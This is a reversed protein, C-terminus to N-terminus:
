VDEGCFKEIESTSEWVNSLVYMGWIFISIGLFGIVAWSSLLLVDGDLESNVYKELDVINDMKANLFEVISNLNIWEGLNENIYEISSDIVGVGKVVLGIQASITAKIWGYTQNNDALFQHIPDLAGAMRMSYVWMSGLLMGLLGKWNWVFSFTAKITNWEISNGLIYTNQIYWKSFTSSQEDSFGLLTFIKYFVSQTYCYENRVREALKSDNKINDGMMNLIVQLQDEISLNKISEKVDETNVFIEDMIQDKEDGTIKRSSSEIHSMLKIDVNTQPEVNTEDDLIMDLKTLPEDPDKLLEDDILTLFVNEDATGGYM